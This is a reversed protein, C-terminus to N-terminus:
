RNSKVEFDDIFDYLVDVIAQETLINKDITVTFDHTLEDDLTNEHTSLLTVLNNQVDIRIIQEDNINEMVEVLAEFISSPSPSDVPEDVSLEPIKTTSQYSKIDSLLAIIPRIEESINCPLSADRPKIAIMYAAASFDNIYKNLQANITLLETYATESENTM